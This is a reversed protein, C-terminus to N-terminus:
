RDSSRAAARPPPEAGLTALLLEPDFRDPDVELCHIRRRKRLLSATQKYADQLKSDVGLVLVLVDPVPPRALQLQNILWIEPARRLTRWGGRLAVQKEGALYQMLRNLEVEDRPSDSTVRALLDVLASGDFTLFRAGSDGSLAQELRARHVLAVFREQKFRRGARLLVALAGLWVREPAIGVPRPIERVGAADAELLPRGVGLTRGRRGC